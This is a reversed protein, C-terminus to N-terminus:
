QDNEEYTKYYLDRGSYIIKKFLHKFKDLFRDTVNSDLLDALLALGEIKSKKYHTVNQANIFSLEEGQPQTSPNAASNYIAKGGSFLPSNDALSLKSLEKQIELEKEWKAGHQWVLSMFELKFQEVNYNLIVSNAYRGMMVAFLLKNTENKTFVEPFGLTSYTETFKEVSPFIDSLKYNDFHQFYTNDFPNM